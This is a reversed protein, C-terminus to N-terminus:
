QFNQGIYKCLEKYESNLIKEIEHMQGMVWIAKSALGGRKILHEEVLSSSFPIRAGDMSGMCQPLLPAAEAARWTRAGPMGSRYHPLLPWYSCFPVSECILHFAEMSKKYLYSTKQALTFEDQCLFSAVKASLAFCFNIFPVLVNHYFYCNPARLLLLRENLGAKEAIEMSTKPEELEAMTQVLGVRYGISLSLGTANHNIIEDLKHAFEHDVDDDVNVLKASGHAADGDMKANVSFVGKATIITDNNINNASDVVIKCHSSM